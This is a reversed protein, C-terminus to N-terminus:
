EVKPPIPFGIKKAEDVLGEKVLLSQAYLITALQDNTYTPQEFIEINFDLERFDIEVLDGTTVNQSYILISYADLKKAFFLGNAPDSTGENVQIYIQVNDLLEVNSTAKYQGTGLFEFTLNIPSDNLKSYDCGTIVSDVVIAKLKSRLVM